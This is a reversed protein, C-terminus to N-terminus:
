LPPMDQSTIAFTHPDPDSSAWAVGLESAASANLWGSVRAPHSLAECSKSRSQSRTRNPSPLMRHQRRFQMLFRHPPFALDAVSWLPNRYPRCSTSRDRSHTRHTPPHWQLSEAVLREQSALDAVSWLPNRYPRCSTSRDRSHTRHTPPHWQLSEAVLREQSALDAVSWLPNRYPRCSTSRDRSHTGGPMPLLSPSPQM